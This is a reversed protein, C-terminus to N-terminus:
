WQLKSQHGMFECLDQSIQVKHLFVLGVLTMVLGNRENIDPGGDHIFGCNHHAVKGGHIDDKASSLYHVCVILWVYDKAGSM